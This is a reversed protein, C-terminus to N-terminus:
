EFEFLINDPKTYRSNYLRIKINYLEKIKNKRTERVINMRAALPHKEKIEQLKEILEDLRM